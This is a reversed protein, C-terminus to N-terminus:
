LHLHFYLNKTAKGLTWQKTVQNTNTQIATCAHTTGRSEHGCLVIVLRSGFEHSLTSDANSFNDDRLPM